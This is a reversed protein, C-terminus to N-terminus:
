AADLAMGQCAAQQHLREYVPRYRSNHMYVSLASLILNLDEDSLLPQFQTDSKQYPM